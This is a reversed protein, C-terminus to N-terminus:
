RFAALRRGRAEPEEAAPRGDAPEAPRLAASGAPAWVRQAPGAARPVLAVELIRVALRVAPGPLVPPEARWWDLPRPAARAVVAPKETGDEPSRAPRRLELWPERAFEFVPPAWPVQADKSGRGGYSQAGSRAGDPRYPAAAEAPQLASRLAADQERAGLELVASKGADVDRPAERGVATAAPRAADSADWAAPM